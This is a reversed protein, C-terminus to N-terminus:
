RMVRYTFSPACGGTNASSGMTSVVSASTRSTQATSRSLSLLSSSRTADFESPMVAQYSFSPVVVQYADAFMSCVRVSGTVILSFGVFLLASPTLATRTPSKSPSPRRSM